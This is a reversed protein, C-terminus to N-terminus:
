AIELVAIVQGPATSIAYMTDSPTLDMSLTDGDYLPYGNTTSVSSNNGIYVPINPDAEVRFSVSSRNALPTPTLQVASTGITYQSTQFSNLGAMDVTAAPGPGSGGNVNISGDANIVLQNDSNGSKIITTAM